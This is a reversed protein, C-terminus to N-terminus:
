NLIWQANSDDNVCCSWQVPKSIYRDLTITCTIRSLTAWHKILLPMDGCVLWDSNRDCRSWSASSIWSIFHTSIIHIIWKGTEHHLIRIVCVGFELGFRSLLCKKAQVVNIMSSDTRLRLVGERASRRHQKCCVSRQESCVDIALKVGWVVPVICFWACKKHEKNSRGHTENQPFDHM